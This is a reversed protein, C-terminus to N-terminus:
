ATDVWGRLADEFTPPPTALLRRGVARVANRQPDTLYMVPSAGDVRALALAALLSGALAAPPEWDVGRAYSEVLANTATYFATARQPAAVSKLLLHNMCFAVDFAPDGFWACEADLLVPGSPGLLINKPSVDGHVVALHTSATRDRARRIARGSRSHARATVRLYPEIRLADFYRRDRLPVTCGTGSRSHSLALVTGVAAAASHDVRGDLLTAKWLPYREPALYEMAFLGAEDDYAVIRPVQGPCVSAAFSLWGREVRNRSVPAWWEARVKLRLLARKVCRRM